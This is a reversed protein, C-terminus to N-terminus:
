LTHGCDYQNLLAEVRAFQKFGLAMSLAILFKGDAKPQVRETRFVREARVKLEIPSQTAHAGISSPTCSSKAFGSLYSTRQSALPMGANEQWHGGQWVMAIMSLAAINLTAIVLVPKKYAALVRFM